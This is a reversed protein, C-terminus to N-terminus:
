EAPVATQTAYARGAKKARYEDYAAILMAGDNYQAKWGLERKLKGTERICMEDAILYQEPDMIPKNIADFAALTTARGHDDNWVKTTVFVDARSAIVGRLAAEAVAEGVLQESGYLSATDLHRYGLELAALVADRVDEAVFPFSSTGVGVAQLPRGDSSALLEPIESARSGGNPSAM